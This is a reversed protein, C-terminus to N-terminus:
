AAEAMDAGKAEPTPWMSQIQAVTLLRERIPLRERIAYTANVFRNPGFSVLSFM